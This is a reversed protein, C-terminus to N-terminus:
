HAPKRWILLPVLPLLFCTVIRGHRPELRYSRSAEGFLWSKDETSAATPPLDIWRFLLNSIVPDGDVLAALEPQHQWYYRHATEEIDHQMFMLLCVNCTLLVLSAIAITHRRIDPGFWHLQLHSDTDGSRRALMYFSLLTTLFVPITAVFLLKVDPELRDVLWGQSSVIASASCSVFLAYFCGVMLSPYWRQIMITIPLSCLNAGGWAVMGLFFFWGEFLIPMYWSGPGSTLVGYMVVGVLILSPLLPPLLIVGIFSAIKPPVVLEIEPFREAAETSKEPQPDKAVLIETTSLSQAHAPSVS